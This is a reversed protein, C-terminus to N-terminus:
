LLLSLFLQLIPIFLLWRFYTSLETCSTIVTHLLNQKPHVQLVKM